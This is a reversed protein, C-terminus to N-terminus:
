EGTEAGQAACSGKRALADLDVPVDAGHATLNLTSTKAEVGTITFSEPLLSATCVSFGLGTIDVLQTLDLTVADAATVGTPTLVLYGGDITPAVTASFPVTLGLVDISSDLEIGNAVLRVAGAFGANEALASVGEEGIALDVDVDDLSGSITQLLMSFGNITVDVTSDSGPIRKKIEAEARTEAFDRLGMDVIVAAGGLIVVTILLGVTIRLAKRGARREGPRYSTEPRRAM